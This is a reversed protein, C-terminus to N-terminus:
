RSRKILKQIVDGMVLDNQSVIETRIQELRKLVKGWRKGQSVLSNKDTAGGIIIRFHKEVSLAEAKVMPALMKDMEPMIVQFLEVRINADSEWEMIKLRVYPEAVEVLNAKLADLFQERDAQAASGDGVLYAEFFEGLAKRLDSM